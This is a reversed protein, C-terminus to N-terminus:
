NGYDEGENLALKRSQSESEPDLKQSNMKRRFLCKKIFVALAVTVVKENVFPLWLFAIYADGAYKMWKIHLFRGLFMFAWGWGNTILWAISFSLANRWDKLFNIIKFKLAQIQKNYIKIYISAYKCDFFFLILCLIIIVYEM